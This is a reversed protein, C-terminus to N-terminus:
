FDPAEMHAKGMEEHMRSVQEFLEYRATPCDIVRFLNLLQNGHDMAQIRHGEQVDVKPPGAETNGVPEGGMAKAIRRFDHWMWNRISTHGAIGGLKEALERYSLYRGKGKLHGGGRIFMKFAERKEKGSLAKAHGLNAVAALRMAERLTMTTVIAPVTVVDLNIAAKLRHWGDIVVLRGHTDIRALKATPFRAGNKMMGSYSRVLKLDLMTRVQLQEDFLISNIAVREAQTSEEFYQDGSIGYFMEWHQTEPTANPERAEKM